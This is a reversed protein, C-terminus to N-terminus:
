GLANRAQECVATFAAPEHIAMESLQKRDLIIDAAQLGAILRSYAIGNARAAINIRTIWLSRMTRKKQKRGAFAQAEARKEAQKAQRLSRHRSGFYGRASKLIKKNAKRRAVANTARMM